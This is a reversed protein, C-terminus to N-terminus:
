LNYTKHIFILEQDVDLLQASTVALGGLFAFFAKGSPEDQAQRPSDLRKRKQETIYKLIKLFNHIIFCISVIESSSSM